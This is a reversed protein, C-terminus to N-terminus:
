RSIDRRRVGAGGLWLGGVALAVCAVIGAPDWVGIMPQGM